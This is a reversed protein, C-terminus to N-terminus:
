EAGDEFGDQLYPWLFWVAPLTPLLIIAALILTLLDAGLHSHTLYVIGLVGGVTGAVACILATRAREELATIGPHQRVAWVLVAVSSWSVVPAIVIILALLSVGDM